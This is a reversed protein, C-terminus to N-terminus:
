SLALNNVVSDAGIVMCCQLAPNKKNKHFIAVIPFCWPWLSQLPHQHHPDLDLSIQWKLVASWVFLQIAALLLFTGPLHRKVVAMWWPAILTGAQLSRSDDMKSKFFGFFVNAIFSIHISNYFWWFITVPYILLFTQSCANLFSALLINIHCSQRWGAM